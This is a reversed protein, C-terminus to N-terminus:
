RVLKRKVFEKFSVTTEYLWDKEGEGSPREFFDGIGFLRSRGSEISKIPNKVYKDIEDYKLRFHEKGDVMIRTSSNTQYPTLEEKLFSLASILASPEIGKITNTISADNYHDEFNLRIWGLRYFLKNLDEEKKIEPPIDKEVEKSLKTIEDCQEKSFLEYPELGVCILLFPRDRRVASVVSTMFNFHYTFPFIVMADASPVYWASFSPSSHTSRIIKMHRLVM